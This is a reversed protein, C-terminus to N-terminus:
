QGFGPLEPVPEAPPVAGPAVPGPYPEAVTEAPPNVAKELEAINKEAVDKIRRQRIFSDELYRRRREVASAHRAAISPASFGLRALAAKLTTDDIIGKAYLSELGAPSMQRSLETRQKRLETETARIAAVYAARKQKQTAAFQKQLQLQMRKWRFRAEEVIYRRDAEAWGLNQLMTQATKLPLWGEALGKVIKATSLHQRPGTLQMKWRAIYEAARGPVIGVQGLLLAALNEDIIGSLMRRRVNAIVEAVHANQVELDVVQLAADVTPDDTAITTQAPQGAEEFADAEPRGFYLVRYLLVAALDRDITGLKYAQVIKSRTLGLVPKRRSLDATRTLWDTRREADVPAYGLDLHIEKVEERNILGFSYFRDIDVLRPNNYSLALLQQRFPVPYDLVKMYQVADALTFARPEFGPQWYREVRGPRLRQVMEYMQQPSINQKGARWYLTAWTVPPLGAAVQEPTRADGGLGQKEMWHIFEAPLEADYEYKAVIDPEWVDRNAFMVLDSPGPIAFRLGLIRQREEPRRFGLRRLYEDAQDDTIVGRNRLEIVQIAPPPLWDDLYTNQWTQSKVGNRRAWWRWDAETIRGQQWLSNLYGTDPYWAAADMIGTWLQQVRGAEVPDATPPAGPALASFIGLERALWGLQDPTILSRQYAGLAESWSPLLNPTGRNAKYTNGRKGPELWPGVVSGTAAGVATGAAIAGGAALLGPVLGIAPIM